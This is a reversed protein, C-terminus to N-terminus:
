LYNGRHFKETVEFHKEHKILKDFTYLEGIGLKVEDEEYEPYKEITKDTLSKIGAIKTKQVIKLIDKKVPSLDIKKNSEELPALPTITEPIFKTIKDNYFKQIHLPSMADRAPRKNEDLSLWLKSSHDSKKSKIWGNREHKGKIGISQREKVKFVTMIKTEYDKISINTKEMSIAGKNKLWELCEKDKGMAGNWEEGYDFQGQVKTEIFTYLHEMFEFLDIFALSIHEENIINSNSQLAQVASMKLLMDQLTFDSIDMYNRIKSSSHSFGRNVLVNFCNLFTKIPAEEIEFSKIDELSEMFDTFNKLSEESNTASLIRDEYATERDIGTMNVYPIIFRRLDGDMAFDEEYMHPQTFICCGVYTKYNLENEFNIDVSKKTITNNPYSDMAIRLYRRSESYNPEKSTLLQKGEDIILYDRSFYGPIQEYEDKSKKKITKGVLQEPHLSTPEYVSKKIRTMIDKITRKLEAKGKGSKLPILIQIRGDTRLQGLELEVGKNKLSMISYWLAKDIIRYEEGYLRTIDILQDFCKLHKNPYKLVINQSKFLNEKTTAEIISKFQHENNQLESISEIKSSM